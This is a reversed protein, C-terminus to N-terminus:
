LNAIRKKTVKVLLSKANTLCFYAVIIAIFYKYSKIQHNYFITKNKCGSEPILSSHIPFLARSLFLYNMSFISSQCRLLSLLIIQKTSHKLVSLKWTM